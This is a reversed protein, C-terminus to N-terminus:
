EVKRKVHIHTYYILYTCKKLTILVALLLYIAPIPSRIAYRLVLISALYIYVVLIKQGLAVDTDSSNM